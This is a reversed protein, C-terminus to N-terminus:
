EAAAMLGLNGLAALTANLKAKDATVHHGPPRVLALGNAHIGDWVGCSLDVLGGAAARAVIESNPGCYTDPDLM